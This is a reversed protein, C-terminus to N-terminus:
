GTMIAMENSDNVAEQSSVAFRFSLSVGGQAAAISGNGIVLLLLCSVIIGKFSM